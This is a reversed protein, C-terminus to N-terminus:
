RRDFFAKLSTVVMRFITSEPQLAQFFCTQWYSNFALTIPQNDCTGTFDVSNGLDLQTQISAPCTVVVAMTPRVWAILVISIIFLGISFKRSLAFRQHTIDLSPSM